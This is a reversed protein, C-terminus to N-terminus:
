RQTVGEGGVDRGLDCTYVWEIVDGDSVTFNSCGYGPFEGNVRYMWGSLEGCDLEYLNGIGEIYRVDYAPTTTSELHIGNDRMTRYLVDYVSEGSTFTVKQEAFIIGDPSLIDKVAPNLRDSNAIATKCTVSLTCVPANQTPQPIPTVTPVSANDQAPMATAPSTGPVDQSVPAETPVTKIDVVTQPEVPQIYTLSCGSLVLASIIIFLLMRKM